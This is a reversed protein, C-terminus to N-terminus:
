KLYRFEASIFLAQCFSSWSALRREEEKAVEESLRENAAALYAAARAREAATSGRSVSRWYAADIRQQDDIGPEALLSHAFARSQEVVFPSNLMYLEQAPVTTVDRRGVVLSPNAFDFVNLLEPLGNRVIPLYVSRHNSPQHFVDVTFGDRIIRDGYKAVVSSEPPNLDLKGSAALIADRIAEADLRRRSARWLLRNEPDAACATDSHEGSLGYVRTLMITRILRKVSWDDQMFRTALHDLLEPHSPREGNIGFNDVTRVIGTGFLHHWVRNVMVRATLPHDGRTLWQALQLRGSQDAPIEPPLGLSAVQVFGRPVAKGIPKEGNLYVQCDACRGLESVGMAVDKLKPGSRQLQKLRTAIEKAERRLQNTDVPPKGTEVGRGTDGKKQKKRKGTSVLTKIEQQRRRLSALKSEHEKQQRAVSGDGTSLVHLGAKPASGNAGTGGYLMKSSTFIGALAYYDETPIPDFKHDHCRACAVTLGMFGRTAVEIEEAVLDMAFTKGNQPKSALVLFGTATKNANAQGPSDAPLLDGALQQTVFQDYPVDQNFADIAWNRFRWAHPMTFNRVNGNSEAYHAVDLWHRGWREGFQPSELLRNVVNELAKPSTDAVFQEVDSPSPPLGILDFYVRRLLTVRDADAVPSLGQAELKSLVFRDIDDRPWNKQKVRPPAPDAIPQFAWFKRGEALDIKKQVTGPQFDGTDVRPDPAGMEVWRVFDAIIQKSLKGSPPMEYDQHKLASILSSEDPKGPVVAPGSEGGALTGAKSDLYLGAKLKKADASHCDYCQSVLVPRIKNEFFKAQERDIEAAWGASTVLLPLFGIGVVIGNKM